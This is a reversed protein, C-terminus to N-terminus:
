VHTPASLAAHVADVDGPEEDRLRRALALQAAAAQRYDNRAICFDYLM